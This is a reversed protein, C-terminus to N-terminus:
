RSNTGQMGHTNGKHQHERRTQSTPRGLSGRPTMSRFGRSPRPQAGPQLVPGHSCSRLQGGALQLASTGASTSRSDGAHARRLVPCPKPLQRWGHDATQRQVARLRFSSLPPDGRSGLFKELCDPDAWRGPVRPSGTRVPGSERRKSVQGGCRPERLEAAGWLLGAPM